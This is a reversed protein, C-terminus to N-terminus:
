ERLTLGKAEFNQITLEVLTVLNLPGRKVTKAIFGMVRYKHKPHSYQTLGREALLPENSDKALTVQVSSAAAVTDTLTEASMLAKSFLSPQIQDAREIGYKGFEETLISADILPQVLRRLLTPDMGGMCEALDGNALQGREEVMLLCSALGTGVTLKHRRDLVLDVTGFWGM